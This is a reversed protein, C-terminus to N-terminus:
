WDVPKSINTGPIPDPLQSDRLVGERIRKIFTAYKM